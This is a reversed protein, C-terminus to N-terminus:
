SAAGSSGVAAAAAQARIFGGLLVGAIGVAVEGGTWWVPVGEAGSGAFLLSLGLALLLLALAGAHALEAHRALRACAHGGALAAAFSYALTLAYWGLDPLIPKGDATAFAGPFAVGVITSAAMVLVAMLVYGAVVALISRGM